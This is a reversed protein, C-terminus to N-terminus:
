HQTYSLVLDAVRTAAGPAGLQQRITALRQQQAIRQEPNALLEEAIATVREVNAQGQLLEPVIEEGAIINPLGSHTLQVLRQSLWWSLTSLKYIIIMPTGILAAELTATGSAIIMLDSARIAAHVQTSDVTTITASFPSDSLQHM